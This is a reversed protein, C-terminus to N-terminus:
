ETHSYGTDKLKERLFETAQEIHHRVNKQTIDLSSAVAAADFGDITYLTFAHRWSEPLQGLIRHVHSHLERRAMSDEPSVARADQTIDGVSPNDDPQFYTLWDEETPEELLGSGYAEAEVHANDNGNGFSQVVLRQDLARRALKLLWAQYAMKPPKEDAEELALVVTDDVISDPSIGFLRGELRRYHVERHVFRQLRDIQEADLVELAKVERAAQAALQEALMGAPYDLRNREHERRTRSIHRKIQNDLDAFASRASTIPNADEESAHLTTGRISLRVSVKHRVRNGNAALVIRLYSSEPDIPSVQREKRKVAHRLANEIRPTSEFGRFVVEKLM